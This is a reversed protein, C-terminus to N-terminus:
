KAPKLIWGQETDTLQNQFYDSRRIKYGDQRQLQLAEVLKIWSVKPNNRKATLLKDTLEELIGVVSGDKRTIVIEGAKVKPKSVKKPTPKSAKEPKPTTKTPLYFAYVQHNSSDWSDHIIHDVIAVAHSPKSRIKGCTIICNKYLRAIDAVTKIRSNKQFKHFDFAFDSAIKKVVRLPVAVAYEEKTINTICNAIDDYAWDTAHTFARAVCDGKNTNKIEWAKKSKLRADVIKVKTM